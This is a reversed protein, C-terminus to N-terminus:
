IEVIGGGAGSYRLCQTWGDDYWGRIRIESGTQDGPKGNAAGGRPNGAAEALKKNGKVTVLMATHKGPAVVVDGPKLGKGTHLDIGPRGAIDKFGYPAWTKKMTQTYSDAPVSVGAKRYCYAVYSSCAFDPNGTRHGPRNDYGHSNDKAVMKAIHM